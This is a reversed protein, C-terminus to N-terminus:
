FINKFIEFIKCKKTRVDFKAKMSKAELHIKRSWDHIDSLTDLIPVHRFVKLSQFSNNVKASDESKNRLNINGDTEARRDM